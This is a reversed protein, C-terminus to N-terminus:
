EGPTSAGSTIGIRVPGERPIWDQTTVMDGKFTRHEITCTSADIRAATDVWFSPVGRVEPIEQLHSTNSSNFGGVVIMLDIKKSEDSGELDAMMDYVADQREQTADCITDVVMYHENLQVDPTPM